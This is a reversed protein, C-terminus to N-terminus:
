SVSQSSNASFFQRSASQAASGLTWLCHRRSVDAQCRVVVVGSSRSSVDAQCRAVVVGSSRSSVDAQCRAVVM